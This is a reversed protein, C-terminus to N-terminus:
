AGIISKSYRVNRATNKFVITTKMIVPKHDSM